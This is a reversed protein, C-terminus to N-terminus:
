STRAEACFAERERADKAKRQQTHRSNGTYGLGRNNEAKKWDETSKMQMVHEYKTHLDEFEARLEQLNAELEDGELELLSEVGSDTSEEESDTVYDSDSPYFNIGGLYECDSDSDSDVNIPHPYTPKIPSSNSLDSNKLPKSSLSNHAQIRAATARAAAKEERQPGNPSSKKELKRKGVVFKM